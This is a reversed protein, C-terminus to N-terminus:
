VPCAKKSLMESLKLNEGSDVPVDITDEKFKM